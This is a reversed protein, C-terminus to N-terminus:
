FINEGIIQNLFCNTEKQAKQTVWKLNNLISKSTKSHKKGARSPTKQRRLCKHLWQPSEDNSDNKIKNQIFPPHFILVLCFRSNM